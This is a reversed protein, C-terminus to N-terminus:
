QGILCVLSPLISSPQVKSLAMINMKGTINMNYLTCTKRASIKIQIKLNNKTKRKMKNLLQLM